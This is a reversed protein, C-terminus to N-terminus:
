GDRQADFPRSARQPDDSRTWLARAACFGALGRRTVAAESGGAIRVDAEGRPVVRFAAGFANSGSACATVTCSNPGKAGFTISVQGSAMDPIMMPVFFPTIKNPGKQLLTLSSDELVQIGGIGSGIGVGVREPGYAQIDLRA